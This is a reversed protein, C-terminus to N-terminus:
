NRGPTTEWPNPDRPVNVGSGTVRRSEEQVAEALESKDMSSRGEVGLATAQEYLEEKTVEETAAQPADLSGQDQEGGDRDRNRAM